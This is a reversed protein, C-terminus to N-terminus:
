KKVNLDHYLKYTISDHIANYSADIINTSVGITSWYNSKEDRSEITVRTLAGTGKDSSVIRVKYDSLRLNDITPYFSVLAKRLARDLANVPGNGNAVTMKEEKNVRIDITAESETILKGKANWRREDIVRFRNLIFYDDIQNLERRVLIEFSALAGDYSYGEFQKEKVLSVIKEVTEKSVNIKLDELQSLVNARGAQDSIIINRTNGVIRPDIHEYTSPDKSIASA